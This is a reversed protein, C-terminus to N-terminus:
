FLLSIKKERRIAVSSAYLEFELSYDESGGNFPGKQTLMMSIRAFLTNKQVAKIRWKSLPVVSVM